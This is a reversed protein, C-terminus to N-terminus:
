VYKTNFIDHVDGSETLQIDLRVETEPEPPELWINEEINENEKLSETSVEASSIVTGSKDQLKITATVEQATYESVNEIEVNFKPAGGVTTGNAQVAGILTPHGTIRKLQVNNGQIKDPQEGIDVDTDTTEIYYYRTDNQRFYDGDIGSEGSIGVAMHNDDPLEILRVDFGITKLISALLISTDKCDGGAEVITEIPYKTYNKYGTAVEDPTYKMGRVFEVLSEIVSQDSGLDSFEQATNSILDDDFPDSGYAKYDNIRHREKYYDYLRNPVRVSYRQTNGNVHWEFQKEIYKADEVEKLGNTKSLELLRSQFAKEHIPERISEPINIIETGFHPSSRNEYEITLETFTKGATITHNGSNSITKNIEQITISDYDNLQVSASLIMEGTDWNYELGTIEMQPNEKSETQTNKNETEPEGSCGALATSGIIAILYRRRPIRDM